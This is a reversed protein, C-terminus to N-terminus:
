SIPDVIYDKNKLVSDLHKQTIALESALGVSPHIPHFSM